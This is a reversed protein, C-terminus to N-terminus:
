RCGPARRFERLESNIKPCCGHLRPLRFKLRKSAERSEDARTKQQCDENSPRRYPSLRARKDRPNQPSAQPHVPAVQPQLPQESESAPRQEPPWPASKRLVLLFERQGAESQAQSLRLLSPRCWLM